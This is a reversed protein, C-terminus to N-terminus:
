IKTFDCLSKIIGLYNKSFSIAVWELIRAQSVRHAVTWPTMPTLCLKIIQNVTQDDTDLYDYLLEIHLPSGLHHLPLSNVQWHLLYLLISNLGQTLFIGQLLFHM